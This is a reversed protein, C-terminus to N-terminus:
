QGQWLFSSSLCHGALAVKWAPRRLMPFVPSFRCSLLQKQVSSLRVKKVALPPSKTNQPKEAQRCAPASSPPPSHGLAHERHCRRCGCVCLACGQFAAFRKTDIDRQNHMSCGSAVCTTWQPHYACKAVRYSNSSSVPEGNIATKTGAVAPSKRGGFASKKYKRSKLRGVPLRPHPHRRIDSLTSEVVNGVGVFAFPAARFLRLDKQIQIVSIICVVVALAVKKKGNLSVIDIIIRVKAGM